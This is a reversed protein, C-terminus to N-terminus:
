CSCESTLIVMGVEKIFKIGFSCVGSFFYFGDESFSFSLGDYMPDPKALSRKVESEHGNFINYILYGEELSLNPFITSSTGGKISGDYKIVIGNGYVIITTKHEDFPLEKVKKSVLGFNSSLWDEMSEYVPVKSKDSNELWSIIKPTPFAGLYADFIYGEKGEFKVKLFQGHLKLAPSKEYREGIHFPAVAEITQDSEGFKEGQCIIPSGFPVVELKKGKFDAETRLTLGSTAWVFLTDGVQYRNISFCFAAQFCLFFALLSPKTSM